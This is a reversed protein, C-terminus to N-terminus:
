AAPRMSRAGDKVSLKGSKHEDEIDFAGLLLTVIIGTFVFAGLITTTNWDNLIGLCGMGVAACAGLVCKGVFVMFKKM